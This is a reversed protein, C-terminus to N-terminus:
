GQVVELDIDSIPVGTQDDTGHYVRVVEYRVADAPVEEVDALVVTDLNTVSLDQLIRIKLAVTTAEKDRLYEPRSSFSRLGYWGATKRAFRYVPMFGPAATNVREFISCVGSDLIM